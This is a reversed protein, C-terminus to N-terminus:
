HQSLQFSSVTNRDAFKSFSNREKERMLTYAVRPDRPLSYDATPLYSATLPQAPDSKHLKEASRPLWLPITLPKEAVKNRQTVAKVM